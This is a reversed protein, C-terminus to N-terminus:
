TVATLPVRRNGHHTATNAAKELTGEDLLTERGSAVEAHLRNFEAMFRKLYTCSKPCDGLPHASCAYPKAAQRGAAQLRKKTLPKEHIAEYLRTVTKKVVDEGRIPLGVRRPVSEPKLTSGRRKAAEILAIQRFKMGSMALDYRRLDQQFTREDTTRLFALRRPIRRSPPGQFAAPLEKVASRVEQKVIEAVGDLDHMGLQEVNIAITLTHPQGRAPPPPRRRRRPRAHLVFRVADPWGWNRRVVVARRPVAKPPASLVKDLLSRPAGLEIWPQREPIDFAIGYKSWVRERLKGLATLRKNADRRSLGDEFYTYLAERVQTRLPDREFLARRRDDPIEFRRRSRSPHPQGAGGPPPVNAM